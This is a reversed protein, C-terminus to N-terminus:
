LETRRDSAHTSTRARRQDGPADSSRHFDAISPPMRVALACNHSSTLGAPVRNNCGGATFVGAVATAGISRGFVDGEFGAVSTAGTGCGVTSRGTGAIVIVLDDADVDDTATTTHADIARM